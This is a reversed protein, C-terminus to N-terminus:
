AARGLSPKVVRLRVPSYRGYAIWEGILMAAGLIALLPWWDRNRRITDNWAPIGHRVSAPLPGNSM